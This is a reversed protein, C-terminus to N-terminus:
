FFYGERMIGQPAVEVGQHRSSHDGPLFLRNVATASGREEIRQRWLAHPRGGVGQGVEVRHDGEGKVLQFAEAAEM